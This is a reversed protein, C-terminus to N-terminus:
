ESLPGSDGSLVWGAWHRAPLRRSRLQMKADWLASSRSLNREFLNTYFLRMLEHTWEDDVAWLSTLVSRAGARHFSEQLSATGIWSGELGTGTECASLVALDCQSLDLFSIEDGTITGDLRAKTGGPANAGSLALGCLSYRGSTILFEYSSTGRSGTQPDIVVSDDETPLEAHWGHTALHLVRARPAWEILSQRTVDKGTLRRLELSEPLLQVLSELEATSGPLKAFKAHGSRELVDPQATAVTKTLSEAGADYQLDGVGLVLKSSSPKRTALLEYFTTRLTFTFEEGLRLDGIPLADLPIGFTPLDHSVILERADGISEALPEFFLERVREGAEVEAAADYASPNQRTGAELKRRWALIAEELPALSGLRIRSWSGDVRVVHAYVALDNGKVGKESWTEMQLYYGVLAQGPKLTRALTSPVLDRELLAANGGQRVLKALSAQALDRASRAGIAAKAGGGSEVSGRLETSAQLAKELQQLGGAEAAALKQMLHIRTGARRASEILSFTIESPAAQGRDAYSLAMAQEFLTADFWQELTHVDGALVRQHVAEILSDVLEVATEHCNEKEGLWAYTGTLNRLVRLRDQNDRPLAQFSEWALLEQERANGYLGRMKLKAGLNIRLKAISTADGAHSRLLGALAQEDLAQAPELEGTEGLAAGLNCMAQLVRMDDPPLSSQYQRLVEEFLPLAKDAQDLGLLTAGLSQRAGIIHPHQPPYLKLYETLMVEQLQRAGELDGLDALTSALNGRFSMAWSSQLRTARELAREEIERAGRLDKQRYLCRALEQSAFFTQDHAEGLVTECTALLTRLQPEGRDSDGLRVRASSELIQAELLAPHRAPMRLGAYELYPVLLDLCDEYSELSWLEAALDREAQRFSFSPKETKAARDRVARAVEIAESIQGAIRQEKIRAVETRLANASSTPGPSFIVRLVLPPVPDAGVTSIALHVTGPGVEATLMSFGGLEPRGSALVEDPSRELRLTAAPDGETWVVLEGAEAIELDEFAISEGEPMHVTRQELREAGPTSPPPQAEQHRCVLMWLAALIM